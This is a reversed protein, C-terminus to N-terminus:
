TDARPGRRSSQGAKKKKATSEVTVSEAADVAGIIADALNQIEEMGAGRAIKHQDAWKGTGIRFKSIEEPSRIADLTTEDMTLIRVLYVCFEYDTMTGLRFMAARHNYSYYALEKGRFQFKRGLEPEKQDDEPDSM